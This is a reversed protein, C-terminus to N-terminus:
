KLLFDRLIVASSREVDKAALVFTVRKGACLARLAEVAAKNETLEARYRKAFETWREPRHGYWTRLEPTPAVDKMWHDIAANSKSVGRPWM